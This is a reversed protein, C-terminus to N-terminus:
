KELVVTQGQFELYKVDWSQGKRTYKQLNGTVIASKGALSPEMDAAKFTKAARVFGAHTFDKFGWLGFVLGRYSAGIFSM